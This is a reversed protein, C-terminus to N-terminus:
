SMNLMRQIFELICFNRKVKQIILTFYKLVSVTLKYHIRNFENKTFRIFKCNTISAIELQTRVSDQTSTFLLLRYQNTSAEEFQRM